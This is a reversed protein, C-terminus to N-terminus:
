SLANFVHLNYVAPMCEATAGWILQINFLHFIKYLDLLKKMIILEIAIVSHHLDLALRAM